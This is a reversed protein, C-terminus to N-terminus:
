PQSGHIGLPAAKNTVWVVIPLKPEHVRRFKHKLSHWWLHKKNQRKTPTNRM